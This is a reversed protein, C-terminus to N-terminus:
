NEHVQDKERAMNSSCSEGKKLLQLGNQSKSAEVSSAVHTKVLVEQEVQVEESSHKRIEAPSVEKQM